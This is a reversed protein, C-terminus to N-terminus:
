NAQESMCLIWILSGNKSVVNLRKQPIRLYKIHCGWSRKIETTLRMSSCCFLTTMWWLFGRQFHKRSWIWHRQSTLRSRRATGKVYIRCFKAHFPTWLKRQIDSRRHGSRENMWCQWRRYCSRGSRIPGGCLEISFYCYKDNPTRRNNTWLKMHRSCSQSTTGGSRLLYSKKSM